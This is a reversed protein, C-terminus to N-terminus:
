TCNILVADLNDIVRESEELERGKSNEFDLEQQGAHTCIWFRAQVCLTEAEEASQVTGFNKIECYKGLSNDVVVVSISGSRNSKKRIYM